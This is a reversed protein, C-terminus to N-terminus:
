LACALVLPYPRPSGGISALVVKSFAFGHWCLSAKGKEETKASHRELLLPSLLWTVNCTQM